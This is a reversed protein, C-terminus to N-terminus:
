CRSTYVSGFGGTPYGDFEIRVLSCCHQLASEGISINQPLRIILLSTCSTLANARVSTVGSPLWISRLRTYRTLSGEGIDKLKSGYEFAISTALADDRGPQGVLTKVSSPIMLNIATRFVGGLLLKTVAYSEGELCVNARPFGQSCGHQSLFQIKGDLDGDEVSSSFMDRGCVLMAAIVALM